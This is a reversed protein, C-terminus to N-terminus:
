LIFVLVRAPAGLLKATSKQICRATRPQQENREKRKKKEGNEELEAGAKIRESGPWRKTRTHITLLPALAHSRLSRLWDNRSGKEKGGGRGAREGEGPKQGKRSKNGSSAKGRIEGAKWNEEGSFM